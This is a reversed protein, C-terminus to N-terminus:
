KMREQNKAIAKLDIVASFSNKVAERLEKDAEYMAPPSGFKRFIIIKKCPSCVMWWSKPDNWDIEETLDLNPNGIKKTGEKEDCFECKM